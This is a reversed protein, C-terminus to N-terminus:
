NRITFSSFESTAPSQDIKEDRIFDQMRQRLAALFRDLEEITGEAVLEVQGSPLNRVYGSVDYHKAIASTTYRFGVGQVNGSFLVSYRSPQNGSM